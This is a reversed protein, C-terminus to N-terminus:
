FSYVFIIKVKTMWLKISEKVRRSLTKKMGYFPVETCEYFIDYKNKPLFLCLSPTGYVLIASDNKVYYRKVVRSIKPMLLHHRRSSVGIVDIDLSIPLMSTDRSTGMGLVLVVQLGLKIFGKAYAIVRNTAASGPQFYHVIIIKNM